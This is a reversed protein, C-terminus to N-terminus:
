STEDIKVLKGELGCHALSEFNAKKITDGQVEAHRREKVFRAMSDYSVLVSPGGSNHPGPTGDVKHFTLRGRLFLLGSAKKFVWDHFWSTDTRAFILAIGDGHEAMKRLWLDIRKSYPPNMWIRGVWPQSLGDDDKTYHSDAMPWPRVIPACPDLDFGGLAKLVRPPTLWEDNLGQNPLTHGGIGKGM